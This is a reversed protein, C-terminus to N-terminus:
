REGLIRYKVSIRTNKGAGEASFSFKKSVLNCYFVNCGAEAFFKKEGFDGAVSFSLTRDACIEAKVLAKKACTKFDTELPAPKEEKTTEVALCIKNNSPNVAYGEDAVYGSGKTIFGNEEDGSKVCLMKYESNRLFPLLYFGKASAANYASYLSTGAPLPFTKLSKGYKALKGDSIFFVNEGIKVASNKKVDLYGLPIKEASYDTRDGTVSLETVSHECVLCLKGNLGCMFVIEGDESETEFYGGLKTGVSFNTFDFPASFRLLKGKAVFLMGNFVTFCDGYPVNKEEDEGEIVSAQEGVILLKTEGGYTIAVIQPASDFTKGSLPEYGTNTREYVKKDSCYALTRGNKRYPKLIRKGVPPLMADTFVVDPEPAVYFSGLVATKETFAPKLFGNVKSRM